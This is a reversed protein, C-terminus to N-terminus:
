LAEWFAGVLCDDDEDEDSYGGTISEDVLCENAAAISAAATDLAEKHQYIRAQYQQPHHQIQMQPPFPQQVMNQPATGGGSPHHHFASYTLQPRPMLLHPFVHVPQQLNAPLLRSSEQIQQQSHRASANANSGSAAAFLPMDMSASSIQQPQQQVPLELDRRGLDSGVRLVSLLNQHHEM